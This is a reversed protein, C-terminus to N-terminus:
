ELTREEVATTGVETRGDKATLDGDDAAAVDPRGTRARVKGSHPLFPTRVSSRRTWRVTRRRGGHVVEEEEKELLDLHSRLISGTATSVVRSKGEKRGWRSKDPAARKRKENEGKNSTPRRGKEKEKEDYDIAM